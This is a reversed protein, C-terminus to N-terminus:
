KDNSKDEERIDPIPVEPGLGRSDFAKGIEPYLTLCCVILLDITASIYGAERNLHSTPFYGLILAHGSRFFLYISFFSACIRAARAWEKTGWLGLGIVLHLVLSAPIIVADWVFQSVVPFANESGVALHVPHIAWVGGLVVLLFGAMCFENLAVLTVIFPRSRKAVPETILSGLM